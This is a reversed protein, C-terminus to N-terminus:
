VVSCHGLVTFTGRSYYDSVPLPAKVQVLAHNQTYESHHTPCPFASSTAVPCLSSFWSSLLFLMMPSTSLFFTAPSSTASCSCLFSCWGPSSWHQSCVLSKVLSCLFFSFGQNNSPGSGEHSVRGSSCSVERDAKLTKSVGSVMPRRSDLEMLYEGLPDTHHHHPGALRQLQVALLLVRLHLLARVFPLLTLSVRPSNFTPCSLRNISRM